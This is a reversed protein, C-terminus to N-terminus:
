SQCGQNRIVQKKEELEEELLHRESAMQKLLADEEVGLGSLRVGELQKKLFVDREAIKAKYVQDLDALAKKQEDTLQHREGPEDAQLREMALEYASKM